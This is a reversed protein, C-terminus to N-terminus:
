FHKYEHIDNQLLENNSPHYSAYEKDFYLADM